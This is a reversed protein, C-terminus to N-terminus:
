KTGCISVAQEATATSGGLVKSLSDLCQKRALYSSSEQIGQSVNQAAVGTSFMKGLSVGASIGDSTDTSKNLKTGSDFSGFVSYADSKGEIEELKKSEKRLLTDAQDRM